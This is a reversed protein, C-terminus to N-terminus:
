LPIVIINIELFMYFSHQRLVRFSNLFDIFITIRFLYIFVKQAFSGMENIELQSCLDNSIDVSYIKKDFSHSAPWIFDIM